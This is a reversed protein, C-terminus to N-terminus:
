WYVIICKKLQKKELLVENLSDNWCRYFAYVECMYDQLFIKTYISSHIKWIYSHNFNATYVLLVNLGDINLGSKQQLTINAHM